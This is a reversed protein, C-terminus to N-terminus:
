KKEENNETVLQGREMFGMDVATKVWIRLEDPYTTGPSLSTALVSFAFFTFISFSSLSFKSQDLKKEGL